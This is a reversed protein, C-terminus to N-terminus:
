REGSVEFGPGGVHQECKALAIVTRQRAYTVLERSRSRKLFV